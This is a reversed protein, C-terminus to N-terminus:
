AALEHYVPERGLTQSLFAADEQDREPRWFLWKFEQVQACHSQERKLEAWLATLRKGPVSDETFPLPMFGNWAVSFRHNKEPPRNMACALQTELTDHQGDVAWNGFVADKLVQKFDSDSKEGAAKMVVQVLPHQWAELRAPTVQYKM